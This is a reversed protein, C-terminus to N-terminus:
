HGSSEIITEEVRAGEVSAAAETPSPTRDEAGTVMFARGSWTKLFEAHDRRDHFARVGTILNDVDQEVAINRAAAVTEPQANASFLPAWYRRWAADIGDARLVRVAEDRSRPDHRVSAKAGVLVVGRVQQPAARAMELACSGGVSSGVVLLEEGQCEGLIATAWEHVSDGLGYLTPVMADAFTACTTDWMRGDFPLAHLLVLRM